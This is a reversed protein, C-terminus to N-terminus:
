FGKSDKVMLKYENIIALLESAPIEYDFILSLKRKYKEIIDDFKHHEVDLVVNSFM